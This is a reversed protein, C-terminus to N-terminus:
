SAYTKYVRLDSGVDPASMLVRRAKTTIQPGYWGHLVKDGLWKPGYMSRYRRPLQDKVILLIRDKQRSMYSSLPSQLVRELLKNHVSFWGAVDVIEEELKPTNVRIGNFYDHGCSERFNGSLFSKRANVTFGCASLLNM